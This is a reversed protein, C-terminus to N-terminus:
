RLYFFRDATLPQQLPNERLALQTTKANKVIRNQGHIEECIWVIRGRDRLNGQAAGICSMCLNIPMPILGAM